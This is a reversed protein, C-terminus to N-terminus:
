RLSIKEVFQDPNISGNGLLLLRLKQNSDITINQTFSKQEFRHWTNNQVDGIEIISNNWQKLLPLEIEGAITAAIFIQTSQILSKGNTSIAMGDFPMAILLQGNSDYLQHCKIGKVSGDANICLVGTQNGELTLQYSDVIIKQPSQTRNHALYIKDGNQAPVTYQYVDTRETTKINIGRFFRKYNERTLENQQIEIPAPVYYILGKGVNKIIAQVDSKEFNVPYHMGPDPLGLSQLRDTKTRKRNTDWSIDGSLYLNGGQSVFSQLKSFSEDSLVYPIPAIIVKACSPLASLDYENIVNFPVGLSICQDLGFTLANFIKDWDGGLRHNDPFFFYVGPEEYKPAGCLKLFYYINRYAELVDKSVLEHSYNIGWPFICGRFEKWDWNAMFMNGLGFGNIVTIMYRDIAERSYTGVKGWTRADHSEQLGFEGLSIGKGLFRRDILKFQKAFDLQPGYYHMNSFDTYKTGLIKDSPPMSPLFGVTHLMTPDGAKIGESNAKIWRNLLHVRFQEYDIAKLSLWEYGRFWPTSFIITDGVKILIRSRDPLYPDLSFPITALGNIFQSETQQIKHDATLVEKVATITQNVNGDLKITVSGNGNFHEPTEISKIFVNEQNLRMLGRSESSGSNQWSGTIGRFSRFQQSINIRWPHDVSFVANLSSLPIAVEGSWGNSQYKIIYKAYSRWLPERMRNPGIIEDLIGGGASFSLHYSEAKEPNANLTFDICDDLRIIDSEDIGTSVAKLKTGPLTCSFGIYLNTEDICLKCLTPAESFEGTKGNVFPGITSASKWVYDDLIGDIRAPTGKNISVILKEDQIIEKTLDYAAPDSSPNWPVRQLSGYKNQLYNNWERQIDPNPIVMTNPENQIDIIIGSVDKYREVWFANWKREAELDEDSLAVELWDHVSLFFIIQYKQCLQVMADTQRKLKESINETSLDPRNRVTRGDPQTAAHPSFHLTRMIHIGKDRMRSFDQDWIFPDENFWMLGTQNVGIMFVSENNVNLYNNILQPKLGKKLIGEDKVVFATEITDNLGDGHMYATVKYFDTTFAPSQWIASIEKTEKPQLTITQDPLTIDDKGGNVKFSVTVSRSQSGFNSVKVSFRPSEGREYLAYESSPNHLFTRTILGDIVGKLLAPSEPHNLIDEPKDLGCFAWSSGAYIGSYNHVISLVSGRLQNYPDYGHLLPIWRGYLIEFVPQNNGVMSTAVFGSFTGEWKLPPIAVCAQPAPKLYSTNELIYSPDFVGIQDPAVNMWDGPQGYHTNIRTAPDPRGNRLPNDFAYGYLSFFAGGNKLYQQLAEKGEAPYDPGCAIVLVDINEKNLISPNSIQQFNYTSVAYGLDQFISAAKQVVPANTNLHLIGIKVPAIASNRYLPYNISLFLSIMSTLLVTRCHILFSQSM